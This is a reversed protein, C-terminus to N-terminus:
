ITSGKFPSRDRSRKQGSLKSFMSGHSESFPNQALVVTQARAQLEKEEIPHHNPCALVAEKLFSYPIPIM